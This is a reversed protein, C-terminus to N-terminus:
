DRLDLIRGVLTPAGGWERLTVTMAEACFHRAADRDYGDALLQDYESYRHRVHSTLALWAAAQPSGNRLGPSDEALDLVAERDFAPIDPALM